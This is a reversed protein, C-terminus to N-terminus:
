KSCVGRVTLGIYRHNEETLGGVAVSESSFLMGRCYKEPYVLENHPIFGYRKITDISSSYCWGAAPIFIFNGNSGTFKIGKLNYETIADSQAESESFENSDLDIFTVTCNDLLEQLENDAPMRWDYGMNVTAADDEPQLVTFGDNHNYKNFTSGGDATDFYDSWDLSFCKDTGLGMGVATFDNGEIGMMSLVEDINDPTLEIEDGIIPQLISYMKAKTCYGISCNYGETEGWAFYTGFDEPALAGVNRDAWLLGSPLGLDVMNYTLGSINKRELAYIKYDGTETKVVHYFTSDADVM